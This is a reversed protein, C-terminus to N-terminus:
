DATRRADILRNIQQVLQDADWRHSRAMSAVTLEGPVSRTRALYHIGMHILEDEIWPHEALLVAVSSHATVRGTKLLPDPPPWMTRVSNAAFVALATLELLSSLPMLWFAPTWVLTAMEMSVRMLNGVGVLVLTPVVLQPWRLRTHGLIPLLRQAVGMILTTLFGVTLAHRAAGRWAHPLQAHSWACYVEGVTLLLTGVVLWFLAVQVYRSLHPAGQEPRKSFRKVKRLGPLALVFAVVGGSISVLGATAVIPTQAVMAAALLAVGANHLAIACAAWPQRATGGVMGPLLRLGFGYVANLSLGFVALSINVNRQGVSYALPGVSQSSVRLWLTFMAWVNWWLGAALVACAWAQPLRPIARKALFATQLAAAILLAAGSLPGLWPLSAPRLAWVFGATIGILMATLLIRVLVTSAPRTATATPLWRLSIGAIFLAVFGWLQADGHAVVHGVPVVGFDTGSGIQFLLWAGWGAGITLTIALAATLFPRHVREAAIAREDVPVGSVESLEALLRKLPVGHRGAFRELPELHGFPRREAPEGYRILVERCAPLDHAVQRVTMDPRLIRQPVRALNGEAPPTQRM